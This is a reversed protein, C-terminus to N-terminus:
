LFPHRPPPTETLQNTPPETRCTAQEHVLSSTPLLDIQFNDDLTPIFLPGIIFPFSQRISIELPQCKKIQADGDSIWKKDRGGDVGRRDGVSLCVSLRLCVSNTQTPKAAEYRCRRGGKTRCLPTPHLLLDELSRCLYSDTSLLISTFAFLFTNAM